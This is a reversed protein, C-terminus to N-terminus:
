ARTKFPLLYSQLPVFPQQAPFYKRMNETVLIPLEIADKPRFLKARLKEFIGKLREHGYGALAWNVVGAVDAVDAVDAL